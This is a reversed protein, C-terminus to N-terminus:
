LCRNKACSKPVLKVWFVVVVQKTMQIFRGCTKKREELRRVTVLGYIFHVKFTM